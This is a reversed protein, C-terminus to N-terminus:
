QGIQLAKDAQYFKLAQEFQACLSAEGNTRAAQIAELDMNVAEPFRGAAAYAAALTALARPDTGGTLRNASEALEVAEARDSPQTAASTAFLFALGESAPAYDSALDITKRFQVIAEAKRGERALLDAIDCRAEPFAPDLQIAHVFLAAADNVRGQKLYACGLNYYARPYDPRLQIVIQYQNIADNIRGENVYANGLNNHASWADPNLALTRLSYIELSEYGMAQSWTLGALLLAILAGSISIAPKFRGNRLLLGGGLAAGALSTVGILAIQQWWDAVYAQDMFTMDIFGLVPLLAIFFYSLAAFTAPVWPRQRFRWLTPPLAVLAIIPFYALPASADIRWKPYVPCLNVPWLDKWLYFWFADGARILRFAFSVSAFHAEPDRQQFHITAWAAAGAIAFFPIESLLDNRTVKGYRLWVCGMLVIPLIVTSGKSLFACAAAILAAAYKWGSREQRYQIFCLAALLYFVLSLTNKLEAIWAVSAANVPHVAFLLAGWWAGPVELSRLARWLLLAAVAHLAINVIHYGAASGPWLRWELWFTTLTLPTFDPATSAFWISRLGDANRVLRNATVLLDDDWIFGARMAPAYVLIPILALAAAAFFVKWQILPSLGASAVSASRKTPPRSV